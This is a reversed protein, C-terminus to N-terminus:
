KVLASDSVYYDPMRAVIRKTILEKLMGALDVISYETTIKVNGVVHAKLTRKKDTFLVM